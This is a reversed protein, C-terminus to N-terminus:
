LHSAAGHTRTHAFDFETSVCRKPEFRTVLGDGVIRGQRPHCSVGGSTETSGGGISPTGSDSEEVTSSGALAVPRQHRHLVRVRHGYECFSIISLM